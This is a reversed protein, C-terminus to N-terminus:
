DLPCSLDYSALLENGPKTLRALIIIWNILVRSLIGDLLLLFFCCM